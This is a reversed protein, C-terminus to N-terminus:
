RLETILPLAPVSWPRASRLQGASDLEAFIASVGAAPHVVFGHDFGAGATLATGDLSFHNVERVGSSTVRFVFTEGNPRVGVLFGRGSYVLVSLGTPLTADDVSSVVADADTSAVQTAGNAASYFVARGDDVAAALDYGDALRQSRQHHTHYGNKHRITEVLGTDRRYLWILGNGDGAVHTWHPEIPITEGWGVGGEDTVPTTVIVGDVTSYWFLWGKSLSVVHSFQPLEGVSERQSQPLPGQDLRFVDVWAPYYVNFSPEYRREYIILRTRGGFREPKAAAVARPAAATPASTLATTLPAALAAALEMSPPAGGLAPQTLVQTNGPGSPGSIVPRQTVILPLAAAALLLAAATSLVAVSHRKRTVGAGVLLADVLRRANVGDAGPDCDELSADVLVAMPVGDTVRVVVNRTTVDGHALPPDLAHLHDLAATVDAAIRLAHTPALVGGGAAQTHLDVGDVFDAVLVHQEANGIDDRLMAVNPHPPMALLQRVRETSEPTRPHHKLVVTRGLQTDRALTVNGRHDLVELLEFREHGM